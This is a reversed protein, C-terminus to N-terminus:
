NKPIGIDVVVIRDKFKELGKKLEHFCVILDAQCCKDEAEGTDPDLGSPLDVAVKIGPIFNFLDIGSSFPERAKGKIGMGLIADILIYDIGKQFKFKILDEKSGIKIVPLALRIKNYNLEAEESLKDKDGFFLVLTRAEKGFYRAAVFGDGGNNGQGCFVVIQKGVLDYKERVTEFVAKGANEMLEEISIGQQTAWHELEKMEKASIM